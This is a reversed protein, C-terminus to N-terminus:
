HVCESSIIHDGFFVGLDHAVRLGRVLRGVLVRVRESRFREAGDRARHILRLPLKM